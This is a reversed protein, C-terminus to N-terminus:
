FRKIKVEKDKKRYEFLLEETGNEEVDIKQFPHTFDQKTNEIFIEYEGKTLFFEFRNNQDVVTSMVNGEKDKAYVVIGTVVTEQHDYAQKIEKLSGSVRIFKKWGIQLNKHKEVVMNRNMKSRLGNIGLKLEYTGKPVNQFVAKGNRDTIALVGNLQVQEGRLAEEGKDWVENDNSDDYVQVTVKYNGRTTGRVFYKKIGLRFQGNAGEHNYFKKTQYRSYNVFGTAAWTNAFKYELNGNLNQNVSRYLEIYNLGGTVTGRLKNDPSAFSYSTNLSYNRFAKEKGLQRFDTIDMPNYQFTTNIYLGKYRYSINSKLGELWANEIGPRSYSYEVVFNLGHSGLTTGLDSRLRYSLFTNDIGNELQSQKSVQPSITIRSNRFGYQFGPQISQQRYHLIAPYQPYVPDNETKQPSLYGPHVEISELQLFLRKRNSIEFGVLQNFLISGRTQGAYNRTSLSNASYVDFRNLKTQYRLALNGGLADDHNKLGNESSLGGEFRLQHNHDFVLPSSFHIVNTNTALLSNHDFLYSIKTEKLAASRMNLKAAIMKSGGTEPFHDTYLNYHNDLALVEVVRREDIQLQAKAGRGSVSYDYDEGYLNGLRLLSRDKEFEIWTDYLSIANENIYHDLSSNFRGNIGAAYFDANGKFQLINMNGNMQNYALELSNHSTVLGGNGAIQRNSSLAILQITTNGVEENLALDEAKIELRYDPYLARKRAFSIDVQIMKREKADLQVSLEGPSIELGAPISKIKVRLNRRSYAQNELFVTIQSKALNPDIYRSPSGAYIAVRKEEQKRINFRATQSASKQGGTFKLTFGSISDKRKLLELSALFKVPLRRTENAALSFNGKPSLILGPYNELPSIEEIRIATKGVNKVILTNTFTQGQEVPVNETEFYAEMANEQALAGTLFLFSFFSILVSTKM